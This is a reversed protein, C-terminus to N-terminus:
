PLNTCGCFACGRVAVAMRPSYYDTIPNSDAGNEILVGEMDLQDMTISINNEDGSNGVDQNEIAFDRVSIGNSGSLALRSLDNIFGCNWCRIYRNSDEFSGFVKKSKKHKPIKDRRVSIYRSSSM